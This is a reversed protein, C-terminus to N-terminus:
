KLSIASYIKTPINQKTRARVSVRHKQIHIWSPLTGFKKSKKALYEKVLCHNESKNLFYVLWSCNKQSRIYNLYHKAMLLSSTQSISPVEPSEM